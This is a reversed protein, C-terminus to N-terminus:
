GVVLDAVGSWWVLLGVMRSVAGADVVGDAGVMMGAVMSGVVGDGPWGSVVVL